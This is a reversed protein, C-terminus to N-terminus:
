SNLFDARLFNDESEERIRSPKYTQMKKLGSFIRLDTMDDTVFGIMLKGHGTGEAGSYCLYISDM